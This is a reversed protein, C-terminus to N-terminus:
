YEEEVLDLEKQKRNESARMAMKVKPMAYVLGGWTPSLYTPTKVQKEFIDIYKYVIRLEEVGFTTQNPFVKKIQATDRMLNSAYAYGMDHCFIEFAYCLEHFNYNHDATAIKARLNLISEAKSARKKKAGKKITVVGDKASIEYNGAIKCGKHEELLKILDEVTQHKAM